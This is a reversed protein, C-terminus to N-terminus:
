TANRGFEAAEVAELLQDEVAVLEGTLLAHFCKCETKRNRSNNAVASSTHM